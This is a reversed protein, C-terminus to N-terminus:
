ESIAARAARATSAQAALDATLKQDAAALAQDQAALALIESELLAVKESIAARAARATSVQTALDATLKQDAAALAQDQAALALTESELSTMKESIVARAARATSTQTAFDATLKQDAAALAQDQAALAQAESELSTMKESIVARAARATSAGAVLDARLQSRETQGTALGAQLRIADQRWRELDSSLTEIVTRAEGTSAIMVEREAKASALVQGLQTLDNTSQAFEESLTAIAKLANSSQSEQLKLDVGLQESVTTFEQTKISLSSTTSELSALRELMASQALDTGAAQATFQERLAVDETQLAALSQGLQAFDRQWLELKSSATEVTALRGSIATQEAQIAATQASLETRLQKDEAQLGALAQGLQLFDNRWMELDASLTKLTELSNAMAGRAAVTQDAMQDREARISALTQGLQTFDSRWQEIDGSLKELATLREAMIVEAASARATQAALDTRLQGSEGRLKEDQASLDSSQSELSAVRETIVAQGASAQAVQGELDKRLQKNEARHLDADNQFYLGGVIGAVALLVIAVWLGAPGALTKLQLKEWMFLREATLGTM